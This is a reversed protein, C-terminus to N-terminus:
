RVPSGAGSGPDAAAVLELVARALRQRGADDTMVTDVLVPQLGLAEVSPSLGADVTDLVFTDVLDSYLRAVGVASVEHGLSALMRDAPGKLARGGVIPSIAVVPKGRRRRDAILERMGPVALIPQISVIPNSPGIIVLSADGLAEAVEPTPRAAEIGDFRIATAEPEQRLRVFYDQFDLWGDVTGVMTRVPADTMPLIRTTLGLSGQIALCASTLRDGDRLRRSRVIHTAIDRDGLRFWTEEGYRGLMEIVTWTEDVLGWGRDPDALGALNYMVADHDPMVLLGHREVDDATNAVITLAHPPLALHLGHALKAGGTGGALIVISGPQRV